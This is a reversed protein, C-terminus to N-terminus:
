GLLEPVADLRGKPQLSHRLCMGKEELASPRWTRIAAGRLQRERQALSHMLKALDLALCSSQLM